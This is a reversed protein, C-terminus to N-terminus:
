KEEEKNKESSNWLEMLKEKVTTGVNIADAQVKEGFQEMMTQEAPAIEEAFVANMGCLAGIIFLSMLVKKM